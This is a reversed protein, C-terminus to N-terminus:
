LERTTIILNGLQDVELMDGPFVVTTSAHEEVLAPGEIRNGALLIPRSYTPTEVFGDATRFCVPRQGTFAKELPTEAGSEIRAINPKRLVGHVSSRLSVVEALNDPASHGYLHAYTEDFLCRISQLDRAEFIESPLDVTAAHEQGVYRMDVSRRVAIEPAGVDARRILEMAEDEMSTYEAIMRDFSLNELVEFITRTFDHRLDMRLMGSAAFHGPASPILVRRISDVGSYFYVM